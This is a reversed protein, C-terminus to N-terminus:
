RKGDKEAYYTLIAGRRMGSELQTLPGVLLTLIVWAMRKLLTNKGAREMGWAKQPELGPFLSNILTPPHWFNMFHDIKVLKFGVKDLLVRLTETTFYYLDRPVDFASWRKKFIKCQLSDKNPIQIILFGNNKLIRYIEKCVEVPHHTHELVNYLTVIDFFGEPYNASFIDGKVVNLKMQDRAYDATNSIEVGYTEFGEERFVELRDGTGCGIDLIRGSSKKTFKAVKLVEDRLLHYRYIKELRRVWKTISSHTDLTEMWSYNEPYFLSMEEPTPRPNVYLLGCRKCEVINFEDKTICFKDGKKFLIFRM